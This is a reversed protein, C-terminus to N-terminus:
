ATCGASTGARFLQDYIHRGSYTRYLQKEIKIIEVVFGMFRAAMGDYFSNM